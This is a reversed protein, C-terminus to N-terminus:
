SCFGPSSLSASYSVLVLGFRGHAPPKEVRLGMQATLRSKRHVQFDDRRRGLQVDWLKKVSRQAVDCRQM